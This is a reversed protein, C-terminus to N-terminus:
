LPMLSRDGKEYIENMVERRFHPVSQPRSDNFALVKKPCPSVAASTFPRLSLAALWQDDPNRPRLVRRGRPV